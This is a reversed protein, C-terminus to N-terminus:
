SIEPNITIKNINISLQPLLHLNQFIEISNFHVWGNRDIELEFLFVNCFPDKGEGSVSSQLVRKALVYNKKAYFERTIFRIESHCM